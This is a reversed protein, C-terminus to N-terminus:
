SLRGSLSTRLGIGTILSSSKIAALVDNRSVVVSVSGGEDDVEPGKSTGASDHRYRKEANETLDEDGGNDERHRKQRGFQIPLHGNFESDQGNRVLHSEQQSLRHFMNRTLLEDQKLLLSVDPGRKVGALKLNLRGGSNTGFVDTGKSAIDEVAGFGDNASRNVAVRISADMLNKIHQQVASSILYAADDALDKITHSALTTTTPLNTTIGCIPVDTVAALMLNHFPSPYSPYLLRQHVPCLTANSLVSQQKNRNYRVFRLTKMNFFISQINNISIIPHPGASAKAWLPMVSGLLGYKANLVPEGVPTSIPILSEITQHMDDMSAAEQAISVISSVSLIDSLEYLVNEPLKELMEDLEARLATLEDRPTTSSQSPQQIQVAKLPLPTPPHKPQPSSLTQTVQGVHDEQTSKLQKSPESSDSQSPKLPSGSKSALSDVSRSQSLAVSSDGSQSHLSRAGAAQM